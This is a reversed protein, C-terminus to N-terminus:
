MKNDGDDGAAVKPITLIIKEATLEIGNQESLKREKMVIQIYTYLIQQCDAYKRVEKKVVTEWLLAIFTNKLTPVGENGVSIQVVGDNSGTPEM